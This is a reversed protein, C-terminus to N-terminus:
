PAPPQGASCDFRWHERPDISTGKPKSNFWWSLAGDFFCVPILLVLLQGLTQAESVLLRQSSKPIDEYYNSAEM